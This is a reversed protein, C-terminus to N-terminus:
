RDFRLARRAARLTKYRGPGKSIGVAVATVWERIFASQVAVYAKTCVPGHGPIIYDVDVVQPLTRVTNWLRPIHLEGERVKTVPQPIVGNGNDLSPAKLFAYDLISQKDYFNALGPICGSEPRSLTRDTAGTVAAVLSGCIRAICAQRCRWGDTCSAVSVRARWACM